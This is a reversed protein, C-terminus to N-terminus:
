HLWGTPAFHGLPHSGTDSLCLRWAHAEAVFAQAFVFPLARALRHLLGGIRWNRSPRLRQCNSATFVDAAARSEAFPPAPAQEIRSLVSGGPSTSGRRRRSSHM